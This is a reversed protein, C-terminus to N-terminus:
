STSVAETVWNSKSKRNNKFYFKPNEGLKGSLLLTLFVFPAYKVITGKLRARRPPDNTEILLYFV